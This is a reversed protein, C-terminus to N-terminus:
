TNKESPSSDSNDVVSEKVVKSVNRQENIINNGITISDTLDTIDEFRHADDFDEDQGNEIPPISIQGRTFRTIIDRVSLSQDPVTLSSGIVPEPTRVHPHLPNRIKM